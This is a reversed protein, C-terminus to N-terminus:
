GHPAPRWLGLHPIETGRGTQASTTSFTVTMKRQMLTLGTKRWFEGHFSVNQVPLRPLLRPNGRVRTHQVLASDPVSV